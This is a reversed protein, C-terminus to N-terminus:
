RGPAMSADTKLGFGHTGSIAAFGCDLDVGVVQSSGGIISGEPRGTLAAQTPFLGALTLCLMRTMSQLM